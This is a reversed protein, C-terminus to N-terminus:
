LRLVYGLFGIYVIGIVGGLVLVIGKILLRKKILIEMLIEEIFKVDFKWFVM